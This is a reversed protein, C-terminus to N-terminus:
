DDRFARRLRLDLGPPIRLRDDDFDGRAADVHCAACNAATKVSAHQWV